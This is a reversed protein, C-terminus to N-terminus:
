LPPKAGPTSGFLSLWSKSSSNMLSYKSFSRLISFCIDSSAAWHYYRVQIQQYISVVGASEQVMPGSEPPPFQECSRFHNPQRPDNGDSEDPQRSHAAYQRGRHGRCLGYIDHMAPESVIVYLRYVGADGMKIVQVANRIDHTYIGVENSVCVDGGDGDLVIGYYVSIVGVECAEQANM